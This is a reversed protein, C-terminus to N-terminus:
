PIKAFLSQLYYSFTKGEHRPNRLSSHFDGGGGGGDVQNDQVDGDM